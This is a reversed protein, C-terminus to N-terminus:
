MCTSSQIWVVSRVQNSRCADGLAGAGADQIGCRSLDLILLKVNATMSDAIAQGGRPRLMNGSVYVEQQLVRNLLMCLTTGVFLQRWSTRTFTRHESYCLLAAALISVTVSLNLGTMDWSYIDRRASCHLLICGPGSNCAATRWGVASNLKLASVLSSLM